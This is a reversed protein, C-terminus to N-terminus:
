AAGLPFRSDKARQGRDRGGGRFWRNKVDHDQTEQHRGLREFPGLRSRFPWLPQPHQQWDPDHNWIGFAKPMDGAEIAAFFQNVRHEQPWNWFYWVGVALVLFAIVSAILTKKRARAKAPDYTPADLLTM